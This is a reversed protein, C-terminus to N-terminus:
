QEKWAKELDSFDIGNDNCYDRIKKMATLNPRSKGTEWRNMTSFSVGLERAFAEQSLFSAQRIQKIAESYTM